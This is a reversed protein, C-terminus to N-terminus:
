IFSWIDDKLLYATIRKEITFSNHFMLLDVIGEFISSVPLLSEITECEADFLVWVRGNEVSSGKM